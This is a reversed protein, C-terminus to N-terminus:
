DDVEMYSQHYVDDCMDEFEEESEAPIGAQLCLRLYGLYGDHMSVVGNLVANIASARKRIFESALM